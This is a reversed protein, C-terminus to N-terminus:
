DDEECYTVQNREKAADAKVRLRLEASWHASVAARQAPTHNRQVITSMTERRDCEDYALLARLTVGDIVADLPDAAPVEPVELLAKAEETSIMGRQAMELVAEMRGAPTQAVPDHFYYAALFVHPVGDLYGIRADGDGCYGACGGTSWWSGPGRTMAIVQVMQEVAALALSLPACAYIKQRQLQRRGRATGTVPVVLYQGKGEGQYELGLRAGINRAAEHLTQRAPLGMESPKVSRQDWAHEVLEGFNESIRIGRAGRPRPASMRGDAVALARCPAVAYLTEHDVEFGCRCEVVDTARSERMQQQCAPCRPIPIANM